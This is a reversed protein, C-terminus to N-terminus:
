KKLKIIIKEVCNQHHDDYLPKRLLTKIVQGIENCLTFPVM